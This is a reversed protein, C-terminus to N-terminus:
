GRREGPEVFAAVLALLSLAPALYDRVLAAAEFGAATWGVGVVFAGFGVAGLALHAGWLWLWYPRRPFAAVLVLAALLYGMDAPARWLDERGAGREVATITRPTLALALAGSRPTEVASVVPFAIHEVLANRAMRWPGVHVVLLGLALGLGLVRRRPGQGREAPM